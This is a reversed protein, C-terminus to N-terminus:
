TLDAHSITSLRNAIMIVTTGLTALNQYICNETIADLASTAEYLLM